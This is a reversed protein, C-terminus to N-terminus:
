KSVAAARHLSVRLLNISCPIDADTGTVSIVKRSEVEVLISALQRGMLCSYCTCRVHLVLCLTCKNVRILDDM